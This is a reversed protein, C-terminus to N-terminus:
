QDQLDAIVGHKDSPSDELVIPEGPKSLMILLVMTGFACTITDLFSLTFIDVERRQRRM